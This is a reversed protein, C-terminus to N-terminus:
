FSKLHGEDKGVNRLLEKFKMVQEKVIHHRSPIHKSRSANLHEDTALEDCASEHM